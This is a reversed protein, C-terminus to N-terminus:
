SKSVVNDRVVQGVFSGAKGGHIEELGDRLNEPPYNTKKSVDDLKKPDKALVKLVVDTCIDM